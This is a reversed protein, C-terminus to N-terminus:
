RQKEPADLNAAMAEALQVFEAVSAEPLGRLMRAGAEREAEGIHECLRRGAATPMLIQRRGDDPDAHRSVLGAACLENVVRTIQSKDRRMRGAIDHASCQRRHCVTKMVRVHSPPLNINAARYAERMARKYAHLLHHLADGPHLSTMAMCNIIDVMHDILYHIIDVLLPSCLPM